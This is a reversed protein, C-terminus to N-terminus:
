KQAPPSGSETKFLKWGTSNLIVLAGIGVLLFVIAITHDVCERCPVGSTPDCVCRATGNSPDWVAKEGLLCAANRRERVTALLVTSNADLGSPYPEHRTFIAQFVVSNSPQMVEACEPLVSCADTYVDGRVQTLACLLLMALVVPVTTSPSKWM